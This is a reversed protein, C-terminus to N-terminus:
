NCYSPIEFLEQPFSQTQENFMLYEVVTGDFFSTINSVVMAIPIKTQISVYFTTEMETNPPIKTSSRFTYCNINNYLSEGIYTNPDSFTYRDLLGTASIKCQNQNESSTTNIWWFYGIKEKFLHTDSIVGWENYLSTNYISTRNWVEDIRSINLAYDTYMTGTVYAKHHDVLGDSVWGSAFTTYRLPFTYTPTDGIFSIGALNIDIIMMIIVALSAFM